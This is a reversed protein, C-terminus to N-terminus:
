LEDRPAEDEPEEVKEDEDISAGERAAVRLSSPSDRLHGREVM